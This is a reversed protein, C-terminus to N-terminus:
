RSCLAAETAIEANSVLPWVKRTSSWPVPTTAVCTSQVGQLHLCWGVVWEDDIERAVILAEDGFAAAGAPDGEFYRVRGLLHM